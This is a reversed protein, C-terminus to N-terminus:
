FCITVPQSLCSSTPWYLLVTMILVMIALHKLRRVKITAAGKEGHVGLGLELMGQPVTFLPKPAGPMQCASAAFGITGMAGGLKHCTELAQELTAGTQVMAGVIQSFPTAM